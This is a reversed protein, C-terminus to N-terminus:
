SRAAKLRLIRGASERVRTRFAPDRRAERLVASTMADMQGPDIALVLDGGARVFRVAREAPSWRDVQAAASMDDSIVVGDFGLDGRLMGTVIRPSFAAPRRPDIRDYVASSMMVLPAGADISAAFPRLSPDDRTTVTDRVSASTDTNGRVRGLGPFHKPVVLIGARAMGRQFALGSRTVAAPTSGYQRGFAGIPENAAANGEPVTDLVPALNVDVGADVLEQGWTRASRTLRAPRLEAQQTARPITSFGPGSLVQVLGGEQDTAVLLATGGTSARDVTGRLTDVVRATAGVGADSRGRLMVNGVHHRRIADITARDANAAETGTMFLQGVQQPLSLRDM